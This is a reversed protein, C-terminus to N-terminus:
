LLSIWEAEPDQTVGEIPIYTMNVKSDQHDFANLLSTLIDWAWNGLGSIMFM